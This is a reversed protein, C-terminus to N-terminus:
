GSRDVGESERHDGNAFNQLFFIEVKNFTCHNGSELDLDNRCLQLIHYHYRIKVNLPAEMFFNAKRDLNECLIRSLKSSHQM